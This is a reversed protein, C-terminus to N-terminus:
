EKVAIPISLTPCMGLYQQGQATFTGSLQFNPWGGGAQLTGTYICNTSGGFNAGFGFQTYNGGSAGSLTLMVGSITDGNVMGSNITGSFPSGSFTGSVMNGNQTLNITAVESLAMGMMSGSQQYQLNGKYNGAYMRGCGVLNAATMAVVLLVLNKKM